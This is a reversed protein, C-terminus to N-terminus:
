LAIFNMKEYLVRIKKQKQELSSGLNVSSSRNCSIGDVNHGIGRSASIFNRIIM